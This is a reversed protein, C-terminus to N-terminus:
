AAARAPAAAASFRALLEDRKRRAAEVNRKKIYGFGRMEEPVSAIQVALTHNQATLGKILREVTREYEGILEREMRREETYGFPDFPTGRLFRFSKLLGFAPLMWPGFQMKRPEGTRPDTRALLPPALHFVVKYDGEFM